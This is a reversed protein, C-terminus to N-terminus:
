AAGCTFRFHVPTIPRSPHHPAYCKMLADFGGQARTSTLSKKPMSSARRRIGHPSAEIAKDFFASPCGHRAV